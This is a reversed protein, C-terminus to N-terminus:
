ASPWAASSTGTIASSSCVASRPQVFRGSTSFAGAMVVSTGDV